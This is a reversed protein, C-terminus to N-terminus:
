CYTHSDLGPNLRGALVVWSNSLEQSAIANRVNDLDVQTLTFGSENIKTLEEM